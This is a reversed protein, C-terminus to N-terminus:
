SEEDKFSGHSLHVRGIGQISEDIQAVVPRINRCNKVAKQQRSILHQVVFLTGRGDWSKERSSSVGPGVSLGCLPGVGPLLADRQSPIKPDRQQLNDIVPLVLYGPRYM